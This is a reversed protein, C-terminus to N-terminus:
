GEVAAGNGIRYRRIGDKGAESTVSLGLKKKVIGSLFGRVSHAQWGTAEMMAAITTGKTSKLNKVVMETKTGTLIAKQNSVQACAPATLTATAASAKASKRRRKAVQDASPSLAVVAPDDASPERGTVDTNRNDAM